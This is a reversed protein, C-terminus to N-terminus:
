LGGLIKLLINIVELKSNLKKCLMVLIVTVKAVMGKLLLRYSRVVGCAVDM